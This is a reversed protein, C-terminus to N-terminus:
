STGGGDTSPVGRLFTFTCYYVILLIGISNPFFFVNWAKHLKREDRYASCKSFSITYAPFLLHKWFCCYFGFKRGKRKGYCPGLSSWSLFRALAEPDRGCLPPPLSSHSYSLLLSHSKCTFLGPEM